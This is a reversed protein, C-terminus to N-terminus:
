PLLAKAHPFLLLVKRETDRSTPGHIEVVVTSSSIKDDSRLITEVRALIEDAATTPKGALMADYEDRLYGLANVLNERTELIRLNWNQAAAEPVPTSSPFSLLKGKSTARMM